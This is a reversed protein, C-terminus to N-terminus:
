CAELNKRIEQPTQDFVPFTKEASAGNSLQLPVLLGAFKGDRIQVADALGGTDHEARSVCEAVVRNGAYLPTESQGLDGSGKGGAKAPDYPHVEQEVTLTLTEQNGTVPTGGGQGRDQEGCGAAIGAIALGTALKRMMTIYIIM